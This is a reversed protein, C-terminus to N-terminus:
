DLVLKVTLSLSHSRVVCLLTHPDSHGRLTVSWMECLPDGGMSCGKDRGMGACTALPSGGTEQAVCVHSPATNMREFTSTCM